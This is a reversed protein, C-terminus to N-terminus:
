DLLKGFPSESDENQSPSDEQESESPLSQEKQNDSDSRTSEQEQPEQPEQLQPEPKPEPESTEEQLYLPSEQAPNQTNPGTTLSPTPSGVENTEANQSINLTEETTDHKTIPSNSIAIVLKPPLINPFHLLIISPIFVLGLYFALFILLFKKKIM